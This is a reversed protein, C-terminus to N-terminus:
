GGTGREQSPHLLENRVKVARDSADELLGDKLQRCLSTWVADEVGKCSGEASLYPFQGM